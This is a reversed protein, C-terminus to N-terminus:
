AIPKGIHVRLKGQLMEITPAGKMGAPTVYVRCSLDYNKRKESWLEVGDVQFSPSGLFKWRAAEADDQIKVVDIEAAIAERALTVRVNALTDEWSSCGDFYLLDIKMAATM